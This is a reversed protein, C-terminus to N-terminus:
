QVEKFPLLKMVFDTQTTAILEEYIFPVVRM